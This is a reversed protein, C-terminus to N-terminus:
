GCLLKMFLFMLLRISRADSSTQKVPGPRQIIIFDYRCIRVGREGKDNNNNSDNTTTTTTSSSNNSNNNNNTSDVFKYLLMQIMIGTTNANTTNTNNDKNNTTNSNNVPGPRQIVIFDYRCIGM